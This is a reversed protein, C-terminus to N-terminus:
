SYTRNSQRPEFTPDFAPSPADQSARTGMGADLLSAFGRDRMEREFKAHDTYRVTQMGVAAAAAINDERDDIFLIHAPATGMADATKLFIEPEPKAIFLSHSWVCHYFETLWPLKAIIGAAICDGINSLIGTRIGAHQLRSAWEVMPLNLDTWVEIDAALLAELQADGLTIGAQAAVGHRYAQGTLAGRDYDHRFAWYAAHLREEDLGTVTRMLSWAAPNPPGSLVMGYDFLVTDIRSAADVM